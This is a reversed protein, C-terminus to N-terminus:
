RRSRRMIKAIKKGGKRVAERTSTAEPIVIEPLEPTSTSPAEISRMELTSTAAQELVNPAAPTSTAETSAGLVSPTTSSVDTSITTSTSSASTTPVPEPAQPASPADTVVGDETVVARQEEVAAQETAIVQDLSEPELAGTNMKALLEETMRVYSAASHTSTSDVALIAKGLAEPENFRYVLDGYKIYQAQYAGLVASGAGYCEILASDEYDGTATAVRLTPDSALPQDKEVHIM